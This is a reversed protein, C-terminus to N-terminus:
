NIGCMEVIMANFVNMTAANIVFWFVILLAIVEPDNNIVHMKLIKTILGDKRIRQIGSLKITNMTEKLACKLLPNVVRNRNVKPM